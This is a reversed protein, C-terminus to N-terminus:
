DAIWRNCHECYAAKGNTKQKCYPCKKLCIKGTAKYTRSTCKSCYVTDEEDFLDESSGCSACNLM